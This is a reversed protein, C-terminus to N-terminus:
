TSSANPELVAMANAAGVGDSVGLSGCANGDGAKSESNLGRPRYDCLKAAHEKKVLFHHCDSHIM